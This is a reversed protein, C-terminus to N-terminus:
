KEVKNGSSIKEWNKELQAVPLLNEDKMKLVMFHRSETLGIFIKPNQNPLTTSPFFSQSWSKGYYFVPRIYVEAMIHGKTYDIDTNELM